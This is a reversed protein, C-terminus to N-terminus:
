KAVCVLTRYNYVPYFQEIQAKAVACSAASSFETSTVSLMGQANTLIAFLIFM